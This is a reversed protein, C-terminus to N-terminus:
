ILWTRGPGAPLSSGRDDRALLRNQSMEFNMGRTSDPKNICSALNVKIKM